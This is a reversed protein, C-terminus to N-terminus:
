TDYGFLLVIIYYINPKTHILIYIHVDFILTNIQNVELKRFIDSHRDSSSFDDINKKKLYGLNNKKVYRQQFVCERFKESCISWSNFFNFFLLCIIIFTVVFMFQKIWQSRETKSKLIMM